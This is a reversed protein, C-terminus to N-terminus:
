QVREVSSSDTMHNAAGNCASQMTNRTIRIIYVNDGVDRSYMNWSEYRFELSREIGIRVCHTLRQLVPSREVHDMKGGAVLKINKGYGSVGIPFHLDFPAHGLM